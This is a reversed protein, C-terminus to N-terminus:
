CQKGIEGRELLLAITPLQKRYVFALIRNSVKKSARTGIAALIEIQFM